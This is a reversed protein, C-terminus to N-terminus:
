GESLPCAAYDFACPLFSTVGRRELLCNASGYICRSVTRYDRSYVHFDVDSSAISLQRAILLSTAYLQVHVHVHVHRGYRVVRTFTRTSTDAYLRLTM